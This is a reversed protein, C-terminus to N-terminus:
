RITGRGARSGQTKGSSRAARTFPGTPSPGTASAVRYDSGTWEGESWMLYYIGKRKIVFSGEVYGPPTIEKWTSGDPDTVGHGDPPALYKATHYRLSADIRSSVWADAASFAIMGVTAMALAFVIGAQIELRGVGGRPAALRPTLPM